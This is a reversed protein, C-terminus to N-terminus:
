PTPPRNRRLIGRIGATGTRKPRHRKLRLGEFSDPPIGLQSLISTVQRETEHAARSHHAARQAIAKYALTEAESARHGIERFVPLASEFYSIATRSRGRGLWAVGIGRLSHAEGHRDQTALDLELHRSFCDHAEKWLEQKLYTEGLGRLAGIEGRIDNFQELVPQATVFCDVADDFRGMMRLLCGKGRLLYARALDADTLRDIVELGQDYAREAKDFHGLDRYVGGLRRLAAAQGRLDGLKRFITLSQELFDAGILDERDPEPIGEPGDVRGSNKYVDGLRLLIEAEAHSDAAQRAAALALGYVRQWSAWHAGVSFAGYLPLALTCTLTALGADSAQEVAATLAEREQAFWHGPEALLEDLLKKEGTPWWGGGVASTLSVEDPEFKAYACAAVSAYAQIVTVLARQRDDESEEATLRERAFVRLLDHFRFRASAGTGAGTGALLRVDVLHEVLADAEQLDTGLAAAAIWLPFDQASILGLRRFARQEEPALGLYSLTFSARVAQDGAELESLRRREDSLRAAFSGMTWHRKTTLRSGAIRVALPLGGCLRAIEEASDRESQVATDGVIHVLLEISQGVNFEALDIRQVGELSPLAGRSTVIVGCGASSPILPRIQIEDAANDLVVLIRRNHLHARFIRSREELEDPVAARAVGLERLFGALVEGPDLAQAEAGRLNVYLQGDPYSRSILHAVHVALTTKGVGPQGATVLIKIGGSHAAQGRLVATAQQIESVRGAFDHIDPPLQFLPSPLPTGDQGAAAIAPAHGDPSLTAPHGHARTDVVATAAGICAAGALLAVRVWLGVSSLGAISTLVIVAAAAGGTVFIRLPGMATLRAIRALGQRHSM